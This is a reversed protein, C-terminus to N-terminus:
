MSENWPIATSYPIVFAALQEEQWPTCSMRGAVSGAEVILLAFRGFVHPFHWGLAPGLKALPSTWTSIGSSPSPPTRRGSRRVRDEDGRQHDQERKVDAPVTRGSAGFSPFHSPRFPPAIMLWASRAAPFTIRIDSEEAYLVEEQRHQERHEGDRSEGQHVV